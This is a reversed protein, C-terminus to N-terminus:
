LLSADNHYTAWEWTEILAQADDRTLVIHGLPKDLYPTRYALDTKIKAIAAHAARRALVREAQNDAGM